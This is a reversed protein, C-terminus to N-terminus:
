KPLKEPPIEKLLPLNKDRDSVTPDDAAWPVNLDPDNWAVGFEDMGTYYNNVVYTLTAETLSYFGHAVGIPIFLGFEGGVGEGLELVEVNKYTPSYPRLDALGVQIRGKPVYWYDVQEFHYHLGRVIGADSDSRNMQIKDWSVQPFWETRFSELFRGRGDPFEKLQIKIVDQIQTSSIKNIM